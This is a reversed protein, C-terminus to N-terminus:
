DTYDLYLEYISKLPIHIKKLRMNQILISEPLVQILEGFIVGRDTLVINIKKGQFEAVRLRIQHLSNLRIQRQRM